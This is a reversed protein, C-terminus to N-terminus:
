LEPQVGKAERVKRVQDELGAVWENASLEGEATAAVDVMIATARTAPSDDGSPMSYTLYSACDSFSKVKQIHFVGDRTGLNAGYIHKLISPKSPHYRGVGGAICQVKGAPFDWQSTSIDESIPQGYKNKLAELYQRRTPPNTRNELDRTIAVVHGGQPGPSFYIGFSNTSGDKNRQANIYTIFNDTQFQEVGDTYRYFQRSERIDNQNVGYTKPAEHVQTINMGLKLDLIDFEQAYAAHWNIGYLFLFAIIKIFVKM